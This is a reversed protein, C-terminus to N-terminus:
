VIECSVKDLVIWFDSVPDSRQAGCKIFRLVARRSDGMLFEVTNQGLPIEGKTHNFSSPISLM